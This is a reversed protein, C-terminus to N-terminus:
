AVMKKIYFYINTEQILCITKEMGVDFGKHLKNNSIINVIIESEKTIDHIQQIKNGCCNDCMNCKPIHSINQETSFNGTEFYYDIM